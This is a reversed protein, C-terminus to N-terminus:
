NEFALRQVMKDLASRQIASGNKRQPDLNGACEGGGMALADNVAIDLRRVYKYRLPCALIRSKSKALNSWDAAGSVITVMPKLALVWSVPGPLM